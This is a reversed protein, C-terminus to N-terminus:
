GKQLATRGEGYSINAAAEWQRSDELGLNRMEERKKGQCEGRNETHTSPWKWKSHVSGKEGIRLWFTLPKSFKTSYRHHRILSLLGQIKQKQKLPLIVEVSCLGLFILDGETLNPCGGSKLMCKKKEQYTILLSSLVGM